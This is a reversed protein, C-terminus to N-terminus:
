EVKKATYPFEENFEKEEKGEGLKIRLDIVVQKIAEKQAATSDDESSTILENLQTKLQENEQVLADNTQSLEESAVQQNVEENEELPVFETFTVDYYSEISKNDYVFDLLPLSLYNYAFEVSSSNAIVNGVEDFKYDYVGLTQFKNIKASFVM